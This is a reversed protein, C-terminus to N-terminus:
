FGYAVNNTKVKHPLESHQQDTKNKVLERM